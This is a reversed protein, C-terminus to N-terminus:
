LLSLQDLEAVHAILPNDLPRQKIAFVAEVAARDLVPAALGYVTETPMVVPVSRGLWGAARALAPGSPMGEVFAALVETQFPEARTL